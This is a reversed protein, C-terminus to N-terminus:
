ILHLFRNTTNEPRLRPLNLLKRGDIQGGELQKDQDPDQRPQMLDLVPVFGLPTGHGRM